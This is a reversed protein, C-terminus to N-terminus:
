YFICFYEIPGKKQSYSLNRKIYRHTKEAKYLLINATANSFNQINYTGQSLFSMKQHGMLNERILLSRTLTETVIKRMEFVKWFMKSPKALQIAKM